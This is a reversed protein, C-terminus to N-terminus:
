KALVAKGLRVERGTDLQFVYVGAPMLHGASDRGDWHFVQRGSALPGQHLVTVRRGRADHVALQATASDALEFGVQVRPNFPNPFLTLPGPAAPTDQAASLADQIIISTNDLSVENLLNPPSQEDYIKAEVTQVPCTGNALAKVNWHLLEGPGTVFEGAGMVIAFGHWTGPEEEFGEFVFYGSDDYLQGPGGGLSEVLSPDYTVTVEITRLNLVQDLYIGLRATEGPALITDEPSWRLDIQAAAEEAAVLGLAGIAALLFILIHTRIFAM